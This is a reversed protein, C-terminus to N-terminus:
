LAAVVVGLMGPGTHALIVRGAETLYRRRATPILTELRAALATARQPSGLYQVALDVPRGDAFQAAVEELRRIAASWTRVKELVEVQGGSLHLLPRAILRPAGGPAPADLRGGATLRDLADLVFFSRLRAARGLAAATVDELSGGANAAEAAAMAAFGLGMGLSRSDIVRVPVPAGAAALTASNVTGSLGKSIHVSVVARAGAAGAAAYAASFLAPAPSATSLRAGRRVQAALAEPLARPEDDCAQEGAVVRLPVVRIGHRATDRAPLGATSDTVVAVTATM